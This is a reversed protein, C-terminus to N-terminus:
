PPRQIPLNFSKIYFFIIKEATFKKLNKTMLVRSGSRYEAQFAPDPDTYFSYPNSVSDIKYLPENKILTKHETWHNQENQEPSRHATEDKEV